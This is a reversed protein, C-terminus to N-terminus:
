CDQFLRSIIDINSCSTRDSFPYIQQYDQASIPIGADMVNAIHKPDAGVQQIPLTNIIVIVTILTIMTASTM